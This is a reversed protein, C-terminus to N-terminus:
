FIILALIGLCLVALAMVAIVALRVMRDQAAAQARADAYPVNSFSVLNYLPTYGNPLVRHLITEIKKRWRFGPNGVHDRMEIFNHLALDAIADGNERRAETYAPLVRAWDDDHADLLENFIRCDEFGANIGQGYFPVIAHASDGVLVVRDGHHWPNCRVTVLRGVPNTRYEEHLNPLNPVADGFERAFFASVAEDDTLADFGNTGTLPWFLTCTFSCDQNPLAIMMFGGRPWIHLANPEIAFDGAATPPITLEKYGYELYSQQYNFGVTRQMADRVASYAGDAGVLLDGEVHLEGGTESHVFTAAPADLEVHQCRWGFHIEVNPTADAENLLTINLDGRSVSNIADDPSKSYPQYALTGDRAHMMRGPMRVANELVADALGVSRLATLGRTSLALNISRGGVFGAARPDPRREYLSVRYGRRGLMIALLSGALGGGVLVVHRDDGAM